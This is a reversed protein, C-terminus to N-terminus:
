SGSQAEELPRQGVWNLDAAPGGPGGPRATLDSGGAEEARERRQGHRAEGSGKALGVAGSTSSAPSSKRRRSTTGKPRAVLGRCGARHAAWKQEWDLACSKRLLASPRIRAVWRRGVEAGEGSGEGVGGSATGGRRAVKLAWADGRWGQVSGNGAGDERKSGALAM